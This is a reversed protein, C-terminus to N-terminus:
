ALGIAVQELRDFADQMGSEMGSNIHMDRAEATGHQV